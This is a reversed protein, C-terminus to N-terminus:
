KGCCLKYKKRSGCPCKDNRGPRPEVTRPKLVQKEPERHHIHIFGNWRDLHEQLTFGCRSCLGKKKELVSETFDRCPEKIIEAKM